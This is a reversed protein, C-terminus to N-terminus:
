TKDFITGDYSFMFLVRADITGVADIFRVLRARGSAGNLKGKDLYYHNNTAKTFGFEQLLDAALSVYGGGVDDSLTAEFLMGPIAPIYRVTGGGAVSNNDGPEAAIGLINVADAGGEEARASSEILIAGELFTEDASEPASESPTASMGMRVSPIIKEIAM